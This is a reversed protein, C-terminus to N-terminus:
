IVVIFLNKNAKYDNFLISMKLRKKFMKKKM